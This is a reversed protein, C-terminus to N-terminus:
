LLALGGWSWRGFGSEKLRPWFGPAGTYDFQGPWRSGGLDRAVKELDLKGPVRAEIKDPKGGLVEIIVGVLKGGDQAESVELFM